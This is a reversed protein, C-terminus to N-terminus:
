PKVKGTWSGPNGKLGDERLIDRIVDREGEHILDHVCKPILETPGDQRAPHHREMPLGDPGIPNPTM